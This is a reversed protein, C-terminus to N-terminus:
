PPSNFIMKCTWFNIPTVAASRYLFDTLYIYNYKNFLRTRSNVNFQEYKLQFFLSYIMQLQCYPNHFLVQYEKVAMFLLISMFHWHILTLKEYTKM